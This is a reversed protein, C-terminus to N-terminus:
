RRDSPLGYPRIVQDESQEAPFMLQQLQRCSQHQRRRVPSSLGRRPDRPGRAPPERDCAPPTSRAARRSGRAAARPPPPSADTSRRVRRPGLRLRAYGAAIGRAVRGRGEHAGLGAQDREPEGGLAAAFAVDLGADVGHQTRETGEGAMRWRRPRVRRRDPEGAATLHERGPRDRQQPRNRPLPWRSDHDRDQSVRRMVRSARVDVEREDGESLRFGFAPVSTSPRGFRDGL